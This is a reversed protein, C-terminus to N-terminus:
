LFNEMMKLNILKTNVNRPSPHYSCLLFKGDPLMTIKNHKFLYNLPVYLSVKEKEFVNTTIM